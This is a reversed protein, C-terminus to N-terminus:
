AKCSPPQNNFSSDADAFKQLDAKTGIKAAEAKAADFVTQATDRADKDAATAGAKTATAIAAQLAAQKAAVDATVKAYDTFMAQATALQQNTKILGTQIRGVFAEMDLAAARARAQAAPKAENSAVALSKLSDDISTNLRVFEARCAGPATASADFVAVVATLRAMMNTTTLELPKAEALQKSLKVSGEFVAVVQEYRSALADRATASTGLSAAQSPIGAFWKGTSLKSYDDLAKDLDESKAATAVFSALKVQAIARTSALLGPDNVTRIADGAESLGTILSCQAHYRVADKIAQSLPYDAYPQRQGKEIIQLYTARRRSDIGDAVVHAMLNGYFAQNYEARYGSAAGTLGALTRAHEATKAISGATGLVTSLVGTVFNTNSYKEQLLVKYRGCRHDSAMLIREQISNRIVRMEPDSRTAPMHLMEDDFKQLALDIQQGCFQVRSEREGVKLDPAIACSNKGRSIVSVLDVEEAVDRDASTEVGFKTLNKDYDLRQTNLASCGSLVVAIAAGVIRFYIQHAM